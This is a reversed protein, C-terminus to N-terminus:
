PGARSLLEDTGARDAGAWREPEQMLTLARRDVFSRILRACLEPQELHISHKCEPVIQLEASPILATLKYGVTAPITEDQRGWLILCQADVNAYDAELRDIAAWDLRRGNRPIAQRLIAQQARRAQRRGLIALLSDVDERLARRPDAVSRRSARAVKEPLIGLLAAMAVEEDGLTAIRVFDPCPHVIAFDGPSLLVMQDVRALLRGYPRRFQRNGMMRLSVMGGLSHGVLTIRFREDAEALHAQLAQLVREALADPSYGGPGLSDPDPQDSEGCGPLDVLILCYHRALGGRLFRWTRHDSLCGHLLVIIREASRRGTERLSVELSPGQDITTRIRYASNPWAAAEDRLAALEPVDSESVLARYTPSTCGLLAMVVSLSFAFRIHTSRM